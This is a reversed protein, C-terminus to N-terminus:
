EVVEQPQRSSPFPIVDSDLSHALPTEIDKEILLAAQLVLKIDKATMNEILYNDNIIDKALREERVSRARDIVTFLEPVDIDQFISVPKQQLKFRLYGDLVDRLQKSNLLAFYHSQIFADFSEACDIGNYLYKVVLRDDQQELAIFRFGGSAFLMFFSALKFFFKRLVDAIFTHM